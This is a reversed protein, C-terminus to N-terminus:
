GEARGGFHESRTLIQTQTIDHYLLVCVSVYNVVSYSKIQLSYADM